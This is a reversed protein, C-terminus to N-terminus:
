TYWFSENGWFIAVIFTYSIILYKKLPQILVVKFDIRRVNASRITTIIKNITMGIGCAISCFSALASSPARDIKTGGIKIDRVKDEMIIPRLSFSLISIAVFFLIPIIPM